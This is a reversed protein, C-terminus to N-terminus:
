TASGAPLGYYAILGDRLAVEPAGYGCDSHEPKGESRELRWEFVANGPEGEIVLTADGMDLPIRYLETIYERRLFKYYPRKM